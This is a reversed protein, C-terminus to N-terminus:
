QRQDKYKFDTWLANWRSPDEVIDNASEIGLFAKVSERTDTAGM